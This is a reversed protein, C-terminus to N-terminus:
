ISLYKYFVFFTFSFCINNFTVYDMKACLLLNGSKIFFLQIVNELSRCRIKSEILHFFLSAPWRQFNQLRKNNKIGRAFLEM